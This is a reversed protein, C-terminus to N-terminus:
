EARALMVRYTIIIAIVGLLSCLFSLSALSVGSVGDGLFLFSIGSIAGLLYCIYIWARFRYTVLEEGSLDGITKRYTCVLSYCKPCVVEKTKIKPISPLGLALYIIFCPISIFFLCVGLCALIPTFNGSTKAELVEGCHPCRSITTTVTYNIKGM